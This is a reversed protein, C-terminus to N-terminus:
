AVTQLAVRRSVDGYIIQRRAIPEMSVAEARCVTTTDLQVQPDSVADRNETLTGRLKIPHDSLQGAACISLAM